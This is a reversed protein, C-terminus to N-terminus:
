PIQQIKINTPIGGLTQLILDRDNNLGTYKVLGDMNIDERLYGSAVSNPNSGGVSFLIADRDNSSGVYKITGDMNVDGCWM